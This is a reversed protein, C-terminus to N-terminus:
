LFGRFNDFLPLCDKENLLNKELRYEGALKIVYPAQNTKILYFLVMLIVGYSSLGETPM